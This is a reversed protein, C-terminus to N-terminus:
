LGPGVAAIKERAQWNEGAAVVCSVGNPMSVLITWTDGEPAALVEVLAGNNDLGAAIPKESYRSELGAVVGTRAGCQPANQAVAAASAMAVTVVTAISLISRM